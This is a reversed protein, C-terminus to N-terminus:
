KILKFEYVWVWENRKWSGKGNISDWLAAFAERSTKYLSGDGNCFASFYEEFPEGNASGTYNCGEYVFIGESCIDDNSIDNIREVKVSIIEIWNRAYKEPMFLPNNWVGKVNQYIMRDNKYMLGHRGLLYEEKLYVKEGVKFRPKIPFSYNETDIGFYRDGYPMEIIEVPQPNMLRRTMTKSESIIAEYMNERFIIGKAM